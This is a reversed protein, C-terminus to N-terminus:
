KSIGVTLGSWCTTGLLIGLISQKPGVTFEQDANAVMLVGEPERKDRNYYCLRGRTISRLQGWVSAM